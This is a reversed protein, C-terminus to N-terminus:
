EVGEGDFSCKSDMKAGCYPCYKSLVEVTSGDDFNFAQAKCESCYHIGKDQGGYENWQGHVVPVADITPANVIANEIAISVHFEGYSAARSESRKCIEDVYRKVRSLLASKSIMDSM